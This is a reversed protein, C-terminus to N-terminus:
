HPPVGHWARPNRAYATIDQARRIDQSVRAGIGAAIARQIAPDPKYQYPKFLPGTVPISPVAPTRFYPFAPSSPKSIEAAVRRYATLPNYDALQFRVLRRRAGRRSGAHIRQWARADAARDDVRRGHGCRDDGDPFFAHRVWGNSKRRVSRSM